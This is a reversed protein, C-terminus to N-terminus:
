RPMCRNSFPWYNSKSYVRYLRFSRSSTFVQCTRCVQASRSLEPDHTLEPAGHLARYYNHAKLCEEIVRSDLTMAKLAEPTPCPPPMQSRPVAAAVPRRPEPPRSSAPTPRPPPNSRSNSNSNVPHWLQHSLQQTSFTAKFQALQKHEKISIQSPITRNAAM